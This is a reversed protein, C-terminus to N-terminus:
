KTGGAAVMVHPIASRIEFEADFGHGGGGVAALRGDKLCKSGGNAIEVSTVGRNVQWELRGLYHSITGYSGESGRELGM